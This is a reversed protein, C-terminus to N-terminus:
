KRIPNLYQRSIYFKPNGVETDSRSLQSILYLYSAEEVDTLKELDTDDTITGDEDCSMFNPTVIDVDSVYQGSGDDVRFHLKVEPTGNPQNLIFGSSKHILLECDLAMDPSVGMLVIDIDNSGSDFTTNETLHLVNM